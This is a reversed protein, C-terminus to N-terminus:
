TKQPKTRGKFSAADRRLWAMAQPREVYLDVYARKGFPNTTPSWSYVNFNDDDKTAFLHVFHEKWHDAPIIELLEKRMLEDSTWKNRKGWIKLTGDAGAQRMADQMDLLHLSEPSTFDWGAGAATSLLATCPIRDLSPSTESIKIQPWIREIQARNVHVDFYTSETRGNKLLFTQNRTQDNMMPYFVLHNSRWVNGPIKLLPPEGWGLRAWAVIKEAELLPVLKNRENSEFLSIVAPTDAVRIDPYSDAITPDPPIAAKLRAIEDSAALHLRYPAGLLRWLFVILWAIVLCAVGLITINPITHPPILEYGWWWALGYLAATGLLWAWSNAKEITGHAAIKVCAWGFKVKKLM